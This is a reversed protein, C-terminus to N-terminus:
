AEEITKMLLVPRKTKKLVRATTSGLFEHTFDLKGHSPLLILSVDEEDATELIKKYPLGFEVKLKLNKPHLLEQVLEGKEKLKKMREETLKKEIDKLEKKETDYIEYYLSYGDMMEEVISEDVVNMLILEEIGVNNKKEFLRVAKYAGQSFDTPFLVKRFM